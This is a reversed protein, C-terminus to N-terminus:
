KRVLFVNFNLNIEGIFGKLQLLLDLIENRLLKTEEDVQEEEEDLVNKFPSVIRNKNLVKKNISNIGSTLGVDKFFLLGENKDTSFDDTVGFAKPKRALVDKDNQNLISDNDAINEEEMVDLLRDLFSGTRGSTKDLFSEQNNSNESILQVVSKVQKQEKQSKELRSRLLQKLITNLGSGKKQNNEMLHKTETVDTNKSINKKLNLKTKIEKGTVNKGVNFHQGSGVKGVSGRTTPLLTLPDDISTILSSGPLRQQVNDSSLHVFARLKNPAQQRTEHQKIVTKPNHSAVLLHQLQHQQQQQGLQVRAFSGPSTQWFTVSAEVTFVGLVVIQRIFISFDQPSFLM